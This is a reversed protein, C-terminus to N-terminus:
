KSFAPPSMPASAAAIVATPIKQSHRRWWRLEGTPFIALAVNSWNATGDRAGALVGADLAAQLGTQVGSARSYDVAAGVMGMVPVMTLAFMPLLSGGSERALFRFLLGFVSRVHPHM